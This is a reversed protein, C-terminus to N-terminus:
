QGVFVEVNGETVKLDGPLLPFSCIGYKESGQAALFGAHEAPVSPAIAGYGRPRAANARHLSAM